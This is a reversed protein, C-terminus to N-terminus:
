CPRRHFPPLLTIVRRLHWPSSLHRAFSFAGGPVYWIARSGCGCRGNNACSQYGSRMANAFVLANPICNFLILLALMSSMVKAPVGQDFLYHPLSGKGGRKGGGRTMGMRTNHAFCRRRPIGVANIDVNTSSCVKKTAALLATGGDILFTDVSASGDKEIMDTATQFLTTATEENESM